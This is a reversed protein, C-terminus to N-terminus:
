ADGDGDDNDHNTMKRTLDDVARRLAASAHKATSARHMVALEDVNLDVRGMRLLQLTTDHDREGTNHRLELARLRREISM